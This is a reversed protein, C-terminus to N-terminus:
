QQKDLVLVGAAYSVSSDTMRLCQSSQRYDVFRVHAELQAARV